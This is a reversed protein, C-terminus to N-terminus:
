TAKLLTTKEQYPGYNFRTWGLWKVSSYFVVALIWAAIHKAYKHQEAFREADRLMAMYFGKDVAEKDAKSGGRAYGFDHRRCSAEFFWGFLAKTVIKPFWKPGCGNGFNAQQDKTLDSWRIPTNSIM